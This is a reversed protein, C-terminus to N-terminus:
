AFIGAARGRETPQGWEDVLEIAGLKVWEHIEAAFKEVTWKGRWKSGDSSASEHFAEVGRALQEGNYVLPQANFVLLLAKRFRGYDVGGATAVWREHAADVTAKPLRTLSSETEPAGAVHPRKAPAKSPRIPPGDAPPVTSPEPTADAVLNEKENEPEKEPERTALAMSPGDFAWGLSSSPGDSAPFFDPHASVFKRVISLRPLGGVHRVISKRHKSDSAKVHPDNDLHGILWLVNAERAIWGARELEGMADGIARTSAGTQATLQAALADPYFVDIGSPGLNLKLAVFIWRARESLKQFDPGDLLVRRIARYEGRDHTM